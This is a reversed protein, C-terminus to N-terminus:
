GSDDAQMINPHQLRGVISMERQFRSVASEDRLRSNSLVKLAVTKNLRTHIARYVAGMGGEGIKEVIRYDRLQELQPIPLQESTKSPPEHPRQKVALVVKKLEPENQFPFAAPADKLIGLTTDANQELGVVTEECRECNAIHESISEAQDESVHCRVFESLANEPPCPENKM